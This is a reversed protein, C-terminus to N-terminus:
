ARCILTMRIKRVKGNKIRMTFWSYTIQTIQMPFSIIIIQSQHRYNEEEMETNRQVKKLNSLVSNQM